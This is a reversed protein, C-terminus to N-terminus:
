RPRRARRRTIRTTRAWRSTTSIASRRAPRIRQPAAECCAPGDNCTPNSGPAATCYRGFHNDFTHNEQVIVVVHKMNSQPCPGACSDDVPPLPADIAADSPGADGNTRTIRRSAVHVIVCSLCPAAKVGHNHWPRRWSHLRCSSSSSSLIRDVVQLLAHAEQKARCFRGCLARRVLRFVGCVGFLDLLANLFPTPRNCFVNSRSWDSLSSPASFVLRWSIPRANPFTACVRSRSSRSSSLSLFVHARGHVITYIEM